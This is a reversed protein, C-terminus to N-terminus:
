SNYVAVYDVYMARGPATSGTPTTGGHVGNPFGGGMAVNLLIFHGAHVAQSWVSDGVQAQTVTHYHVDDVFWKLTEPSTSRDVEIAYTHYNGQCASGPCAISTGLGNTEQCPGGPNTGCHLVGWVANIGNVNEMIDFEGVSPWNYYNGRFARGLTWFAPWYGLAEAGTVAPMKIRAQIRMKRGAAAVFDLRRTEIRASTWRGSGDRLPIIMLEGNGNLRLNDRSNTYTQVEGTGWNPPGGPYSTGTDVIWEGSPGINAAGNFDDSWTLRFGPISPVAAQITPLIAALVAALSHYRM